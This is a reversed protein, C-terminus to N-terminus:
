RRVVVPPQVTAELLKWRGNYGDRVATIFIGLESGGPRRYAIVFLRHLRPDRHDDPSLPWRRLATLTAHRGEVWWRLVNTPREFGPERRVRPSYVRFLWRRASITGTGVHLQVRYIGHLLPPPLRGQLSGDVLHLPTWAATRGLRGAAGALRAEVSSTRTGTVAIAAPTGLRSVAPTV